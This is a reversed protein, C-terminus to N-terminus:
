CCHLYENIVIIQTRNSYKIASILWILGKVNLLSNIYMRNTGCSIRWFNVQEIISKSKPTLPMKNESSDKKKEKGPKPFCCWGSNGKRERHTKEGLECGTHEKWDRIPLARGPWRWDVEIWGKESLKALYPALVYQSLHWSYLLQM